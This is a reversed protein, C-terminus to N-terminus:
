TPSRRETSPTMTPGSIRNQFQTPTTHPTPAALGGSSPADVVDPPCACCDDGINDSCVDSSCMVGHCNGSPVLKPSPSATSDSKNPLISGNPLIPHIGFYEFYLNHYEILFYLVTAFIASHLRGGNAGYAAGFLAIVRIYRNRFIRQFGHTTWNGLANDLIALAFIGVIIPVLLNSIKTARM